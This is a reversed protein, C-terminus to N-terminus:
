YRWTGKWLQFFRSWGLDNCTLWLTQCRLHCFISRSPESTVNTINTKSELYSKASNCEPVIKLSERLIARALSQTEHNM